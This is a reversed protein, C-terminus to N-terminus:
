ASTTCCMLGQVGGGTFTRSSSGWNAPSSTGCCALAAPARVPFILSGACAEVGSYSAPVPYACSLGASGRRCLQVCAPRPDSSWRAPVTQLVTPGWRPGAGYAVTVTARLPLAACCRSSAPWSASRSVSKSVVLGTPVPSVVRSVPSAWRSRRRTLSVRRFAPSTYSAHRGPLGPANSCRPGRLVARARKGRM